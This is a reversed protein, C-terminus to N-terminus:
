KCGEVGPVIAAPPELARFVGLLPQAHLGERGFFV